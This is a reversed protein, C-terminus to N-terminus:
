CHRPRRARALADVVLSAPHSTIVALHVQADLLAQLGAALESAARDTIVVIAEFRRDFARAVRDTM